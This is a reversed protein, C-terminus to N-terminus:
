DFIGQENGLKPNDTIHANGDEDLAYMVGGYPVTLHSFEGHEVNLSEHWKKILNDVEEKTSGDEYGQFINFVTLYTDYETIERYVYTFLEIFQLLYRSLLPKNYDRLTKDLWARKKDESVRQMSDIEIKTYLLWNLFPDLSEPPIIQHDSMEILTLLAKSYTSCIDKDITIEEGSLLSDVSTGLLKALKPLQYVPPLSTEANVWRSVTTSSVGLRDSFQDQTIGNERIYRFIQDKIIGHLEKKSGKEDKGYNNVAM